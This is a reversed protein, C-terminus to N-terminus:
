LIFEATVYNYSNVAKQLVDLAITVDTVAYMARGEVGGDTEVIEIKSYTSIFHIAGYVDPKTKHKLVYIAAM